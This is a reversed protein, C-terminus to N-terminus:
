VNGTKGVTLGEKQDGRFRELWKSLGLGYWRYLTNRKQSYRPRLGLKLMWTDTLSKYLGLIPRCIEELCVSRPFIYIVWLRMFTSIPASVGINRKQSYKNRLKPTKAKCHLLRINVRRRKRLPFINGGKSGKMKWLRINVRKRTKLSFINGGKRAKVLCNTDWKYEDAPLHKRM